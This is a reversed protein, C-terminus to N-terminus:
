RVAKAEDIRSACDEFGNIVWDLCGSLYALRGKLQGRTEWDPGSKEKHRIALRVLGRASEEYLRLMEIYMSLEDRTYGGHGSLSGITLQLQRKIYGLTSVGNHAFGLYLSNVGSEEPDNAYAEFDGYDTELDRLMHAYVSLAGALKWWGGNAGTLTGHPCYLGGRAMAKATEPTASKLGNGEVRESDSAGRLASYVPETYLVGVRAGEIMQECVERKMTVTDVGDVQMLTAMGTDIRQGLHESAYQTEGDRDLLINSM